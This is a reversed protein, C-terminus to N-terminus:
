PFFHSKIDLIVKAKFFVKQNFKGLFINELLIERALLFLVNLGTLIEMAFGNVVYLM